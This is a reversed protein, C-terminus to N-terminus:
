TDASLFAEQLRPRTSTHMYAVAHPASTGSSEGGNLTSKLTASPMKCTGSSSTASIRQCRGATFSARCPNM